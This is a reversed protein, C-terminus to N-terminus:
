LRRGPIIKEHWSTVEFHGDNDRDDKVWEVTVGDRDSPMQSLIRTLDIGLQDMAGNPTKAFEEITIGRTKWRKGNWQSDSALALVGSLLVFVVGYEVVILAVQSWFKM